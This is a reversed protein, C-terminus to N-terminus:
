LDRFPFRLKEDLSVSIRKLLYGTFRWMYSTVRSIRWSIIETRMCVGASPMFFSSLKLVISLYNEFFSVSSFPLFPLSFLSLSVRRLSPAKGDRERWDGRGQGESDPGNTGLWITGFFLWNTGCIFLWTFNELHTLATIQTCLLSRFM